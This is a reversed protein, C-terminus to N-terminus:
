RRPEDLLKCRNGGLPTMMDQDCQYCFRGILVQHFRQVIQHLSFSASVGMRGPSSRSFRRSVNKLDDAIPLCARVASNPSAFSIASSLGKGERSERVGRCLMRSLVALTEPLSEPCRVVGIPSNTAHGPLYGHHLRNRWKRGQRFIRGGGRM